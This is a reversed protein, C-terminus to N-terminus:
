CRAQGGLQLALGQRCELVALEIYECSGAMNSGMERDAVQPSAMCHHFPGVKCPNPHLLFMFLAHWCCM